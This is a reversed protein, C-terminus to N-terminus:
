SAVWAFVTMYTFTFVPWRWSRTERRIVGLTAACQSCLAFFIMISLAVLPNFTRRGEADTANRLTARLGGAAVPSTMAGVEYDGADVDGLSYLIGLTPIILERAPFSAVVGVTTRWDFGAPAFLPQLGKGLSALYSAELYAAAERADVQALDRELAAADREGREVSQVLAVREAESAEHVAAPRPYYSLLWIIISAAFIITGALVVFARLAGVTQSVVVRWSPSQYTPLEMMLTSEGGSLVTKRLGVAVLAAVAIGLLYLGLLVWGALAPEFFAGILVVYVPLRASCSMLPAVVVTAIRDTESTIVRSALIGPVACAFSSVLPVFSKGSLGVARLLRDLLFVARAMYGSAELLTVIAILIVIQPVFVLVSGVGNVLGDILFSQLAGPAVLAEVAGALLGLGAEIWGIFPDAGAFILQFVGAFLALLIPLGLVPHLLLADVRDTLTTSGATEPSSASRAVLAAPDEVKWPPAPAGRAASLAQGLAVAGHGRHAQTEVVPLGLGESLVEVDVPRGEQRAVDVKNLAVVVPCQLGVVAELL